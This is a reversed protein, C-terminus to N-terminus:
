EGKSKSSLFGIIGMIWAIAITVIFAHSDGERYYLAILTPVILSVGLFILLASLIHIVARFNIM